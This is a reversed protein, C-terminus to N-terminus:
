AEGPNDGSEDGHFIPLTFEFISGRPANARYSIDGGHSEVISKSISLGVGMGYKKTSFFPAFLQGRAEGEIGAGNDAVAVRVMGLSNRFTEVLIEPDPADLLADDANRLLNVLVQGIQIRDVCVRIDGGDGPPLYIIQARSRLLALSVADDILEHIKAVRREPPRKEIFGRLRRLIEAARRAQAEIKAVLDPEPPEGTLAMARRHAAAFNLIAAIPQGVEHALGTVVEGMDNLRSVHVLDDRLANVRRKEEEIPSLDRLFGVFMIDQNFTTEGVTLELPFISGDKRRGEVKRRLGIVHKKGGALYNALYRDHEARYHNPMLMKVNCGLLEARDYGFMEQAAPNASQILGKGDISVIAEMAADVIANLRREKERMAEGVLLRETIDESFIIVGGIGDHAFRWPRVEWRMWRVSGDPRVFRDQDCSVSEGALARQHVERWEQKIETEPVYHSKDALDRALGHFDRWRASTALYRMDRDLMAMAAPAQEVFHGFQESSLRVLKESERRSRALCQLLTALFILAACNFLFIGLILYNQGTGLSAVGAAGFPANAYALVIAVAAAACGAYAGFLLAAILVAPYFTFYIAREGFVDILAYRLAFGVVMAFVVASIRGRLPLVAVAAFFRLALDGRSRAKAEPVPNEGSLHDM